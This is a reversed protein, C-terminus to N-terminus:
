PHTPQLCCIDDLHVLAPDALHQGPFLCHVHLQPKNRLTPTAQLEGRHGKTMCLSRPSPLLPAQLDCVTPCPQVPFPVATARRQNGVAKPAPLGHITVRRKKTLQTGLGTNSLLLNPSAKRCYFAKQYKHAMASARCTVTSCSPPHLLHRETSQISGTSQETCKGIKQM